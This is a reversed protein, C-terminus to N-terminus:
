AESVAEAVQPVAVSERVRERWTVIAFCGLMVLLPDLARMHYPEPHNLYYMM